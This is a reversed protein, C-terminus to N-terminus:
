SGQMDQAVLKKLISHIESYLQEKTQPTLIQVMPLGIITFNELKGLKKLYKLQFALDFDHVSTRPSLTIKDMDTDKLLTPKRLGMITDMIAVDQKKDFPLDENPKVVHFSIEPLIRRLEKLLQLPVNDQIYDENGFVYVEM